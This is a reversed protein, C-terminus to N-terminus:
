KNTHAQKIIWSNYKRIIMYIIAILIILVPILITLLQWPIIFFHYSDKVKQADQAGWAIEAKATYWGMHMNSWQKKVEGLFSTSSSNETDTDAFSATFKRVSKPLVSGESPNANIIQTKLGFTNTIKIDGLPVIRDGGENNVKYMFEIPTGTYFRKNDTTKFESFGASELVPGSVRLLVLVGIKGGVVVQTNDDAKPAQNGFFVAAFYGGPLADKPITITFPITKKQGAEISVSTASNFWTALGQEAGVFKPAGTDGSPEFNEYSTYLTKTESQENFLVIESSITTGPDGTIDIKAPSVTLADVTDVSVTLIAVFAIYLYIIKKM